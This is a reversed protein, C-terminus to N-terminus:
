FPFFPPENPFSGHMDTMLECSYVTSDRGAKPNTISHKYSGVLDVQARFAIFALEWLYGDGAPPLAVLM